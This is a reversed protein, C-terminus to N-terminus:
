KELVTEKVEKPYNGKEILDKVISRFEGEYVDNKFVRDLVDEYGPERNHLTKYIMADAKEQHEISQKEQEQYKMGKNKLISRAQGVTMKRYRFFQLIIGVLSLFIVIVPIIWWWRSKDEYLGYFIVGLSGLILCFLILSDYRFGIISFFLVMLLFVIGSSALVIIETNNLTM